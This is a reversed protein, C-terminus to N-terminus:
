NAQQAARWIREPTLPMDIQEVGRSALADLVANVVAPVSPICGAEGCGKVGFSNHETLVENTALYFEPMDDARPLCYDMFSGSLLQGSDSDYVCNEYVAQGIGQALGGHIQGELMQPNVVRGFDNVATYIELALAGTDPDVEVECIHCGNPITPDEIESQASEDLGPEMGAPLNATDRAAAALAMIAIARDTGAVTFEGSDFRIDSASTELLHAALQKGKEIIKDAGLKVAAAVMYTSRSGGSGGGQPLADTDGEEYIIKDFPMGLTEHLFQAFITGHGQGSSKTGATLTVTDDQNFRITISENPDGVTSEVYLAMGIGRLKGREHALARRGAFGFWDAFNLCDDLNKEFNGSDYVIDVPSAYPMQDAPIVNRRRIEVAGLGTERGAKDVLREVVYASEPIGAGRYADTFVTNTLVGRVEAHIAPTRYACALMRTYLITPSVPGLNSVYAGLNATTNVRLALFNADNDLALEGHTVHDRAQTDSLFGEGRESIWRVPRAVKRAAWAVLPQEPHVMHKMGFGGGIIGALIRLQSEECHLIEAIIARAEFPHHNNTHLTYRGSAEDYEGMAGRPEIPNVIVRSNVLDLSVIREAKAFADDTAARDGHEWVFSLNGPAEPWLTPADPAEAGATEVVCPLESYTVEIMEAADRAQVPTEAIVMAVAEGVHRVRAKPLLYNPPYYRPSGDPRTLPVFADMVCPVTGLGDAEVDAGTYIAVVGPIALAPASDIKEIDAHAHPSRLFYAHVQGALNLDEQFSGAGRLLEDDEKRKVSQGVGFKAM